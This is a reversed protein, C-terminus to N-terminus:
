TRGEKMMRASLIPEPSPKPIKHLYRLTRRAIERFVPASILGGYQLAGKPDDIVVVMSLVPDDAPVFGVFSVLHRSSSYSGGIIKQSTGTKGAVDFGEVRGPVGTGEEVVRKFIEVMEGCTKESLVRRDEAQAPGVIDVPTRTICPKVLLGRTAYVNMARLIQLATVSIEYGIAIRLSSKRWESLPHCIGYEEGPLDIGTKEGFHFNRIMRYLTEEGIQQAIKISGVNSSEIIVDAFSLVGMRKHDKVAGKGVVISGSSCDYISNLSVKALERAAAATVIKFTSGPEFINQIARNRRDEQSSSTFLNPDYGPRNAAALIEGSKPDMVIVTGWNAQCAEMAKDLESEAIYQITEDITLLLDRGPKAEKITEFFYSKRRADRMILKKGKEGVLLSDYQLEVGALGNEDVGVGGLVHAALMGQPYFRKSEEQLSIGKINLTKVRAATEPDVKRKVYIFTNKKQIRARIQSLEKDTLGLIGKLSDIKEMQQSFHENEQPIFCVSEVPLSQALIKGNRDYITGRKPLVTMENQSQEQVKNQLSSHEIVQLEVLRGFILVVWAMLILAVFKARPRMGNSFLDKM